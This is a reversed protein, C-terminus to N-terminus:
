RSGKHFLAVAVGMLFLLLVVWLLARVFVSAEAEMLPCPLEPARRRSLYWPFVVIWLLLSSIGWRLAHPVHRLRADFFVWLSSGALISGLLLQYDTVNLFREGAIALALYLALVVVFIGWSFQNRAAPQPTSEGASAPPPTLALPANVKAFDIPQHCAVCIRCSPALLQGCNPCTFPEAPFATAPAADEAPGAVGLSSNIKSEGM